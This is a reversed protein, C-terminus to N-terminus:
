HSDSGRLATLVIRGSADQRSHVLAARHLARRVSTVNRVPFQGSLRVNRLKDDAVVFKTTTYREVEALVDELAKDEFVLMGRRWALRSELDSADIHTVSQFGPDVLAEHLSHVTAEGYTIPDRRRAPTQPLGPPADLVKVAGQAVTLEVSNPTLMRLNFMTGEVQFRRKGAGVVFPREPAHVVDFSAEGKSLTVERSDPSYTVGVRTDTNLTLISGDPLTVEKIEGIATGYIETDSARTNRHVVKGSSEPVHGMFLVVGFAVTSLVAFTAPMAFSLPRPKPKEPERPHTPVLAALTSNVDAGHLLRATELIAVRNVPLKLWDRLELGEEPYLGRQLRAIWKAAERNVAESSPPTSRSM